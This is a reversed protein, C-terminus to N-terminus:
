CPTAHINRYLETFRRVMVAAGFQEGAVSRGVECFRQRLGANDLLRRTERALSARDGPPVLIATEGETLVEAIGPVRSAVVPRGAALAELAVQASAQVRDPLWVIEARALWPAVEAQPGVFHVRGAAHIDRSFQRLRPEDSGRGILVLHLDLYLGRMIDLAWIADRFGKHPEFPGIGVIVRASPPLDPAGAPVVEGNSYMEVGPAIVAVCDRPLGLHRTCEAEFDGTVVVAACRGLLWRDFRPLTSGRHSPHFPRSAVTPRRGRDLLAALRLAPLRWTHLVDPQFSQLVRQLGRVPNPDLLHRWDFHEVPIGAARLQEAWPGGQGLVCVSCEFGDRALKPALLTLQRAAGGYCLNPIVHLVRM